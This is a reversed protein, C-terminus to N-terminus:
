RGQAQGARREAAKGKIVRLASSREPELEELGLRM